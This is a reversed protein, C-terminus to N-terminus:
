TTGNLGASPEPSPVSAVGLSALAGSTAETGAGLEPPGELGAGARLGAGCAAIGRAALVRVVPRAPSALPAM